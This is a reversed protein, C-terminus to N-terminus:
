GVGEATESPILDKLDELSPLREMYCWVTYYQNGDYFADFKYTISKHELYDNTVASSAGGQPTVGADSFVKGLTDAVSQPIADSDSKVLVACFFQNNGSEGNLQGVATKMEVIDVKYKEFTTRIQNELEKKAAEAVNGAIDGAVESCATLSLMMLLALTLALVKKLM